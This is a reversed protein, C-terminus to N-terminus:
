LAYIAPLNLYSVFALRYNGDFPPGFTNILLCPATLLALVFCMWYMWKLFKFYMTIGIKMIYNSIRTLTNIHTHSPFVLTNTHTHVHTYVPVCTPTYVRTTQVCM